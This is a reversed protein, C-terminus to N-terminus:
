LPSMTKGSWARLTTEYREFVEGLPAERAFREKRM